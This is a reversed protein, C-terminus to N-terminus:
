DRGRALEDWSPLQHKRAGYRYYGAMMLGFLIGAALASVVAIAVPMGEGSWVMWWMVAGWVLAFVSGTVLANAAFGAFHPPRVDIGLKWLLHLAPPAFNSPWIGTKALLELAAQRQALSNM